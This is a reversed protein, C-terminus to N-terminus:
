KQLPQSQTQIDPSTANTGQGGKTFKRPEQMDIPIGMEQIQQMANGGQQEENSFQQGDPVAQDIERDSLGRDTLVKRVQPVLHPPISGQQDVPIQTMVQLTDINLQKEFEQMIPVNTNAKVRVVYDQKLAKMNNGLVDYLSRGDELIMKELDGKKYYQLIMNKVISYLYEFAFDNRQAILETRRQSSLQKIRSKTASEDPSAVLANVDHGSIIISDSRMASEVSFPLGTNGQAQIMNVDNRPDDFKWHAGPRVQVDQDDLDALKSTVYIPMSYRASDMNIRRMQEEEEVLDSLLYPEGYNYAGVISIHNSIWVLPIYKHGKPTKHPIASKKILTGNAFTHVEDKLLDIHRYVEVYKFGEFFSEEVEQIADNRVNVGGKVMDLNFYGKEKTFLTFFEDELYMEFLGCKRMDRQTKGPQYLIPDILVNRPDFLRAEIKRIKYPKKKFQMVGNKKKGTPISSYRTEDHWDFWLFMDGMTNKHKMYGDILLPKLKIHDSIVYEMAESFPENLDRADPSEGVLVPYPIRQIEDATKSEIFAYEIPLRIYSRGEILAKEIEVDDKEFKAREINKTWIDIYPSRYNMMEDQENFIEYTLDYEVGSMEKNVYQEIPTKEM